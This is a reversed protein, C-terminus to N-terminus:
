RFFIVTGSPPQFECAGLDITNGTLRRQGAVDTTYIFHNEYDVTAPQAGSVVQVIVDVLPTYTTGSNDVDVFKVDASGTSFTVSATRLYGGRDIATTSDRVLRYDRGAQNKFWANNTTVSSEDTFTGIIPDDDVLTYGVSRTGGAFNIGQTSDGNDSFICNRISVRSNARDQFYALAPNNAVTCNVLILRDGGVTNWDVIASAAGSYADYFVCGFVVVRAANNKWFHAGYTGSYNRNNRFVTNAILVTGNAASVVVASPVSALNAWHHEVVSSELVSGATGAGFYIGSAADANKDCCGNKVTLNTLRVRTEARICAGYTQTAREGLRRGGGTVVLNKLVILGNGRLTFVAAAEESTATSTDISGYSNALTWDPSNAETKMNGDITTQGSVATFNTNYGGEITIRFSSSSNTVALRRTNVESSQRVYSAPNGSGDYSSVRILVDTTASLANANTIASYLGAWTAPYV